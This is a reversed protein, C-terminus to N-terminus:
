PNKKGSQQKLRSPQAERTGGQKTRIRGGGGRQLDRKQTEQAKGGGFNLFRSKVHIMLLYDVLCYLLSPCWREPRRGGGGEVFLVFFFLRAILGGWM